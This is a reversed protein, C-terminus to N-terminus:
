NRTTKSCRKSVSSPKLPQLLPAGQILILSQWHELRAALDAEFKTFTARDPRPMGTPPMANARLKRLVREWVEPHAAVDNADYADLELGGTKLTGNHCVLAISILSPKM